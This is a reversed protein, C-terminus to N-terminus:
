SSRCPASQRRGREKGLEFLEKRRPKGALHEWESAEVATYQLLFSKQRSILKKKRLTDEDTGRKRACCAKIFFIKM